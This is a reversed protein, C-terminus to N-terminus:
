EKGYTLGSSLAKVRRPVLTQLWGAYVRAADRRWTNQPQRNQDFYHAPKPTTPDKRCDRQYEALLTDTQYELHGALYWSNTALDKIFTAGLASSGTIIQGRRVSTLPIKFFRSQPMTLGGTTYVGSIKDTLPQGTFLGDITGAAYAGWCIFLSGTVHTKRWALIRHLEPWFDVQQFALRDLPAGTIILGDFHQDEIDHFGAYARRVAAANHRLHHTDPVCFTLAVPRKGAALVQALQQETQARNPMLNLVLLQLASPATAEATRTLGRLITVQAM